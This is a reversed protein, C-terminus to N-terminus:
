QIKAGMLQREMLVLPVSLEVAIHLCLGAAVSLCFIKLPNDTL